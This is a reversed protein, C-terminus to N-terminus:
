LTLVRVEQTTILEEKEEMALAHVVDKEEMDLAHAEEKEEMALEHAKEKRRLEETHRQTMCDARFARIVLYIVYRRM